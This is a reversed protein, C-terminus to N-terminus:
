ASEGMLADAIRDLHHDPSGYMGRNVTVRRLYLHLDHEYTVGIGGHLQVCDQVAETAVPGIFAKAVSALEDADPQGEALARSAASATAHCREIDLKLDACRHKLAQYSSLPRGFSYRDGMMELTLAFIRDLAGVTEACQLVVALTWQRVMEDFSGEASGVVDAAAIAVGDFHITAFRRVLDLGGMPEVRVGPADAPVVVHRVGDDTIATVLFVHAQAGAEVTRRSGDLTFSGPSPGATLRAPEDGGPEVPVWAAITSGAMIGELTARRREDDDWGALASAVVNAPLFPGPAVMRGLEEAVLVVDAVGNGSVSGGGDSESVLLSTWGLACGAKWVDPDFGAPDDALARTATISCEAEIFSRTTARLLEQYEGLELEV